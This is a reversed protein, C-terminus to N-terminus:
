QQPRFVVRSFFWNECTIHTDLELSARVINSKQKKHVTPRYWCCRSLQLCAGSVEQAVLSVLRM